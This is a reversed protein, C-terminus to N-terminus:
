QIKSGNLDLEVIPYGLEEISDGILNKDGVVLILMKELPLHQEALQNVKEQSISNIIATQQNVYDPDLDFYAIRSLFGAKQGPTEYSLADSQGIASRMFELEEATIGDNRYNRIEKVFERVSDATNEKKVSASATFPGPLKGGSFNSRAGYTYGKDERLNLNIRSNFAGGLVFNMLYRNFYEGTPEYSLGTLYGIKVESQEAGPKDVLYLVADSEEPLDPQPQAKLGGSSLNNLLQLHKLAAQQTIDGVVVAYMDGSSINGEVFSKVDDLNVNELGDLTGIGPYALAHGDGYILKGYIGSAISSPIQQQQQISQVQQTKLRLFDEETLKSEYVRQQLLSMTQELRNKLSTLSIFTADAGSSVSVSSGLKDLEIEFEEATLKNTGENMMSAALSALGRKNPDELLQGGTFAIRMTVLPVESTEVGVVEIGGNLEAQWFDPVQVLPAQGPAPQTTRDFDNQVPRPQLSSTDSPVGALRAPLEFNDPRTQGEPNDATVISQVIAPKGQIYKQFVRYVDQKTLARVRKIEDAIFNPEGVLTEFQALRSVKGRVSTLGQVISSEQTSKYILLDDDSISGENFNGLVGRMEDEFQSLSVGPYPLVFFYISGALEMSQPSASAQIARNSLVFEKYLLSKKGGGIINALCELAVRDPHDMAVTPYTMVLAPFRINNDVYSVYRDETLTVAPQKDPVVEPGRPIGGFYKVVLPILESEEFSGGITLTANNPGYWRLFFKKLDEVTAADLDEPYGIVPWSYPHEPPYLAAHNVEQFRGYPQNEVNQGRENKVTARQVEFKEQTVAELLFGMRDAELWLATELYNEPVTEFYNTRDNNTTGNMTGGAANVIKIHEEDAIHKSGQFMMHEFFHAFGSRQYEERASGVHYTVDAHVLPDSHDEHLILTLGNDLEFKSYPISIDGQSGVREILTVGGYQPGLQVSACSVLFVAFVLLSARRIM